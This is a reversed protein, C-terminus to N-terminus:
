LPLLLLPSLVMLPAALFPHPPPPRAIIDYGHHLLYLHSLLLHVLPSHLRSVLIVRIHLLPLPLPPPATPVPLWLYGLEPHM